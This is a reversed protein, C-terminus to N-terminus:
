QFGRMLERMRNLAYRRFQDETMPKYATQPRQSILKDIGESDIDSFMSELYKTIRGVLEPHEKTFDKIDSFIGDKWNPFVDMVFFVYYLDKATKLGRSRLPSTLVKHIVFMSPRPIRLPKDIQIGLESLPFSWPNDLLLKVYRLSQANISGIVEVSKGADNSETLFEIEAHKGSRLEKVYRVVPPTDLSDFRHKFGHDLIAEDLTTGDEVFRGRELATDFDYTFLPEQSVEGSYIKAYLYPVWGGVVVLQDLYSSLPIVCERFVEDVNENM